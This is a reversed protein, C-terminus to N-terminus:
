QALLALPWTGTCRVGTSPAAAHFLSPSALYVRQGDTETVRAQSWGQTLEGDTAEDSDPGLYMLYRSSTTTINPDISRPSPPCAFVGAYLIGPESILKTIWIRSPSGMPLQVHTGAKARGVTSTARDIKAGCKIQAETM